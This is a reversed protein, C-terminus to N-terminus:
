KYLVYRLFHLIASCRCGVFAFLILALVFTHVSFSLEGDTHFQHAQVDELDETGEHRSPDAATDRGIMIRAAEAITETEVAIVNVTRTMVAIIVTEAEAEEICV